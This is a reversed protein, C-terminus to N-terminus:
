WVTFYFICLDWILLTFYSYTLIINIRTELMFYIWVYKSLFTSIIALRIKVRKNITHFEKSILVGIHTRKYILFVYTNCLSVLCFAKKLLQPFIENKFHKWNCKICKWTWTWHWNIDSMKHFFLKLANLVDCHSVYM